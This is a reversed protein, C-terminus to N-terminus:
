CRSRDYRELAGLEAEAVSAFRLSDRFAEQLLEVCERDAAAIASGIDLCRSLLSDPALLENVLGWSLATHADVFQGTLMLQRARRVGVANALLGVQGWRPFLGIKAHTDAFRARDSAIVFSCSLAIELGGTICPGNVAAIVPKRFARLAEAPNPSIPPAPGQTAREKIDVGACFAPGSGTVVLVAVSPDDAAAAVLPPFDRRMQRTLANRAEPRNFVLFRVAGRDAVVFPATAGDVLEAVSLLETVLSDGLRVLM